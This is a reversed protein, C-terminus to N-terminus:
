EITERSGFGRRCLAVLASPMDATEAVSLPALALLRVILRRQELTPHLRFVL